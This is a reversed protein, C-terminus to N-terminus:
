QRSCLLVHMLSNAVSVKVPENKTPIMAEHVSCPLIATKGEIVTVNVGQTEFAPETNWTREAIMVTHINVATHLRKFM